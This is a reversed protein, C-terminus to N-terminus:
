EIKTGCSACFKTGPALAAQCKPCAAAAVA